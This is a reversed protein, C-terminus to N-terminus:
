QTVPARLKATWPSNPFETALRTAADDARDPQQITNWLQSLNYLAEAHQARETPFLTDIHLYALLAEKPKGSARLCDGQRLYAEAQVHYDDAASQNIVQDLLEIAQPYNKQLQLCHAIGLQAEQKKSEENPNNKDSPMKSVEEFAAKAGALDDKALSQRAVALKAAMRYDNFPASGLAEFAKAAGDADGKAMYLQGLYNMAEYYHYSDANKTKFEDLKKIAEDVRAPDALALKATARAILYQLDTRYGASEPKPEGQLKTLGDIAKQLRGGLEDGVAINYAPPAGTWRIQIIDNSPIEVDAGVKPKYTIGGKTITTVEGGKVEKKEGRRMVDDASAFTLPLTALAAATLFLKRMLGPRCFDSCM